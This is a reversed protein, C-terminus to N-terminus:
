KKVIEVSRTVIEGCEPTVRQFYEKKGIRLGLWKKRQWWYVETSKNKYEFLSRKVDLDLDNLQAEGEWKWCKDSDALHWTMNQLFTSEVEVTDTIKETVIRDVFKIVQKPKIKLATALSDRERLLQGTLEKEKILLAFSQKADDILSQQNDKLRQIEQRAKILQVYSRYGQWALFLLFVILIGIIWRVVKNM